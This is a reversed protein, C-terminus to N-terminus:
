PPASGSSSSVSRDNLPMPAYVAPATILKAKPLRAAIEVGVDRAHQEPKRRGRRDESACISLFSHSSDRSTRGCRWDEIEILRQHVEARRLARRALRLAMIHGIVRLHREYGNLGLM